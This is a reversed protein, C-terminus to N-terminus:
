PTLPSTQHSNVTELVCGMSFYVMRQFALPRPILFLRSVHCGVLSLCLRPTLERYSRKLFTGGPVRKEQQRGRKLEASDRLFSGWQREEEAEAKPSCTSALPKRSLSFHAVMCSNANRSPGPLSGAARSRGQVGTPLM